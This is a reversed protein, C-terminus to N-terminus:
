LCRETETMIERDFTIASTRRKMDKGENEKQFIRGCGHIFIRPVSNKREQGYNKRRSNQFIKQQLRAVQGAYAGFRRAPRCGAPREAGACYRRPLSYRRKFDTRREGQERNNRETKDRRREAGGRRRRGGKCLPH